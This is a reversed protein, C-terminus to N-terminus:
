RRAKIAALEEVVRCSRCTIRAVEGQRKCTAVFKKNTKGASVGCVTETGSSNLRHVPNLMFETPLCGSCTVQQTDISLPRASTIRLGCKTVTGNRLHVKKM